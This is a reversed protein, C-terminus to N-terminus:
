RNGLAGAEFLMNLCDIYGHQSAIHVPCFGQNEGINPDALAVKLLHEMTETRNSQTALYLPTFGHYTRKNVDLTVPTSLSSHKPSLPLLQSHSLLIQVINTFGKEAAAHLSSWGMYDVIDVKAGAQLLCKVVEEHGEHCAIFLATQGEENQSDLNLISKNIDVNKNLENKNNNEDPQKNLLGPYPAPLVPSPSTMNSSTNSLRTKLNNPDDQSTSNFKELEKKFNEDNEETSENKRKTKELLHKLLITLFKLNGKEAIFSLISWGNEDKANLDLGNDILLKMIDDKENELSAQLVWLTLLENSVEKDNGDAQKKKDTIDEVTREAVAEKYDKNYYQLIRECINKNNNMVALLLCSEGDKTRSNVIKKCCDESDPFNVEFRKLIASVIDINGNQAVYHFANWGMHNRALVIKLPDKFANLLFNICDLNAADAAIHLATHGEKTVKDLKVGNDVLVKLVDVRNEQCAFHIASWGTENKAEIDILDPCHKLLTEVVKTHGSQSAVHIPSSGECEFSNLLDCYPLLLQLIDDFGNQAAIYAATVGENTMEQVFAKLDKQRGLVKDILVKVIEKKNKQCACHLVAWGENDKEKWDAGAQLLREVVAPYGQQCAVYLPTYGEVTTKKNIDCGSSLLLNIIELCDNSAAFHLPAWGENDGIEIDASDGILLKVMDIHGQSCATHLATWGGVMNQSNVDVGHKLMLEVMSLRNLEAALTIASLGRADCAACGKAIKDRNGEFGEQLSDIDDSKVVDVLDRAIEMVADDEEYDDEFDDSKDGQDTLGEQMFSDYNKFKIKDANSKDNLECDSFENGNDEDLRLKDISEENNIKILPKGEIEKSKEFENHTINSKTANACTSEENNCLKKNIQTNIDVHVKNNPKLNSKETEKKKYNKGSAKLNKTQKNKSSASKSSVKTRDM